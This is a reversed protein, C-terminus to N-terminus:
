LKGSEFKVNVKGVVVEALTATTFPAAWGFLIRAGPPRLTPSKSRNMTLVGPLPVPLMPVLETCFAATTASIVPMGLLVLMLKAVASARLKLWVPAPFEFLRALTDAAMAAPPPFACVVTQRRLATVWKRCTGGAPAVTCVGRKM